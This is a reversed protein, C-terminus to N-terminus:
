IRGDKKPAAVLGFSWPSSSPEIVDHQRWKDLTKRLDAEREPNQPRYKCRIPPGPETYIRHQVLNTHGYSGDVSFTDFYEELLNLAREMARRDAGLYSSKDLELNTRLWEGYAALRGVM